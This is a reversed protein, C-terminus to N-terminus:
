KLLKGDVTIQHHTVVPPVEAMDFHEENDKDKDGGERSSKQEPAAAAEPNKAANEPPKNETNKAAAQQEPKKAPAQNQIVSSQAGVASAWFFSFVIAAILPRV